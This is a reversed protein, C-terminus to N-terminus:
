NAAGSLRKAQGLLREAEDLNGRGSAATFEVLVGKLRSPEPPAVEVAEIGLIELMTLCVPNGALRESMENLIQHLSNM